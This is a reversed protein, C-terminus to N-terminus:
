VLGTIKLFHRAWPTMQALDLSKPNYFDMDVLEEPKFKGKVNKAKYCIAISPIPSQYDADVNSGVHHFVGILDLKQPTFGSEERLEKAASDWAIDLEKEEVKGGILDWKGPYPERKLMKHKGM